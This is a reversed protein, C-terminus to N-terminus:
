KKIINSNLLRTGPIMWLNTIYRQRYLELSTVKAWKTNRIIRLARYILQRVREPTIEFIDAIEQMTMEKGNDWGYRFKIIERARLSIAEIMVKELEARLEERWIKDEVKEYDNNKYQIIDQLESNNEDGVPINLSTEDNTNRYKLFRKIKQEIWYVAYTVFKASNELDFEYKEAAAILGLYGEQILDERDISNTGTVYYSNVIKFVMGKNNEILEDLAKKYGIQYLMVLDENTM